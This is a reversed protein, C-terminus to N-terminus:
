DRLIAYDTPYLNDIRTDARIVKDGQTFMSNAHIAKIVSIPVLQTKRELM